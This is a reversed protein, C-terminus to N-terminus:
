HLSSDAPKFISKRLVQAVGFKALMVLGVLKRRAQGDLYGKQTESSLVSKELFDDYARVVNTVEVGRGIFGGGSFLPKSAEQRIEQRNYGPTSANSVNHSTTLLGSQAANLGSLAVGFVGNGM